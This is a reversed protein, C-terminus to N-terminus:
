HIRQLIVQSRAPSKDSAPNLYRATQIPCLCRFRCRAYCYARAILGLRVLQCKLTLGKPMCCCLAAVPGAAVTGLSTSGILQSALVVRLSGPVSLECRPASSALAAAWPLPPTSHLLLTCCRCRASGVAALGCLGAPRRCRGGTVARGGSPLSFSWPLVEAPRGHAVLGRFRPTNCDGVTSSKGRAIPVQPLHPFTGPSILQNPRRPRM